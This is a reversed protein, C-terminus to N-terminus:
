AIVSLFEREQEQFNKEEKVGLMFQRPCTPAVLRHGAYALLATLEILAFRVYLICRHAVMYRLMPEINGQM